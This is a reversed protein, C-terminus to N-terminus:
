IIIFFDRKVCINLYMLIDLFIDFNESMYRFSDEGKCICIILHLINKTYIIIGVIEIYMYICVIIEDCM